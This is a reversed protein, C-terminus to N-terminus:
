LVARASCCSHARACQMSEAINTRGPRVVEQFINMDMRSDGINPFRLTPAKTTKALWAVFTYVEKLDQDECVPEQIHM